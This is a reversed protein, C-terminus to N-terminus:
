DEENSKNHQDLNTKTAYFLGYRKNYLIALNNEKWGVLEGPSQMNRGAAPNSAWYTNGIIYEM